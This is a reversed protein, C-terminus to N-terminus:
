TDQINNSSAIYEAANKGALRGSCYAYTATICRTSYYPYTYFGSGEQGIVYLGPITSNRKDLAELRENVKVGGLTGMIPIISKIAYIPMTHENMM